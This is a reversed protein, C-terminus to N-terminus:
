GKLLSINMKFRGSSNQAMGVLRDGSGPPSFNLKPTKTCMYICTRTDAARCEEIFFRQWTCFDCLPASDELSYFLILFNMAESGGKIELSLLKHLCCPLLFHLSSSSCSGRVVSCCLFDLFDSLNGAHCVFEQAEFLFQHEARLSVLSHGFWLAGAEDPFM